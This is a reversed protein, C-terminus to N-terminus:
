TSGSSTNVQYLLAMTDMVVVFSSMFLTGSGKRSQVVWNRIALADDSTYKSNVLCYLATGGSTCATTICIAVEYVNPKTLVLMAKLMTLAAETSVTLDESGSVVTSSPM